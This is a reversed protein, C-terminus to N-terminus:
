VVVLVEALVVVHGEVVIFYHHVVVSLLDRQTGVSELLTGYVFMSGVLIVTGAAVFSVTGLTQQVLDNLFVRV